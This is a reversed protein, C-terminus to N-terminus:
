RICSSMSAWSQSSNVGGIKSEQSPKCPEATFVLFKFLLSCTSSFIYRNDSVTYSRTTLEQWTGNSPQNQQCHSQPRHLALPAMHSQSPWFLTPSLPQRVSPCDPLPPGSYGLLTPSYFPVTTFDHGIDAYPSPICIPHSDMTVTPSSSSSNMRSSLVCSGARSSDVEQLQLLPADREPSESM